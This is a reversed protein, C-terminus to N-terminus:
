RRSARPASTPELDETSEDPPSMDVFTPPVHAEIAALSPRRSPGGAVLFGIALTALGAFVASAAFGARLAAADGVVGAAVAATISLGCAGGIQQLATLLASAVGATEKAVGLLASNTLTVMVLGVGACLIMSCAIIALVPTDETFLTLSATGLTALASGVLGVFKPGFRPLLRRTSAAAALVTLNNPLFLLGTQVASLGLVEQTFQSLFYFMSLLSAGSLGLAIFSGARSRDRLIHGPLLPTPTRREWLAFLGLTLAGLTVLGIAGWTVTGHGGEGTGLVILVLASVSLLAGVLDLRRLRRWGGDTGVPPQAGPQIYRATAVAAVLGIPVNIWMTWRWSLYSTFAGGLILGAASGITGIVGYTAFATARQRPRTFLTTLLGLAAPALVAAFVGQAARAAVLLEFNHALGGVASAACFGLLAVLLCVRKGWLDAVRGGVLLLAGFTLVYASLVWQLGSGHVGLDSGIQPLAIMVITGDLVVIFQSLALTALVIRQSASMADSATEDVADAPAPHPNHVGSHM